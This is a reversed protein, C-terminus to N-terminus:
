LWSNHLNVVTVYMYAASAVRYTRVHVYVHMCTCVRAQVVHVIYTLSTRLLPLTFGM